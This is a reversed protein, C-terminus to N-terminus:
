VIEEKFFKILEEVQEDYHLLMHIFGYWGCPIVIWMFHPLINTGFYIFTFVIMAIGVCLTPMMAITRIIFHRM